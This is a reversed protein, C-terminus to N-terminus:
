GACLGEGFGAAKADQLGRRNFIGCAGPVDTTDEAGIGGKPRFCSAQWTTLIM